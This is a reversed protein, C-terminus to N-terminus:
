GRQEGRVIIIGSVLVLILSILNRIAIMKKMPTPEIKIQVVSYCASFFNDLMKYLHTRYINATIANM